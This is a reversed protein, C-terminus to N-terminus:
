VRMKYKINEGNDPMSIKFCIICSLYARILVKRRRKQNSAIILVRNHSLHYHKWLVFFFKM